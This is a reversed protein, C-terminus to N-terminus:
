KEKVRSEIVLGVPLAAEPMLPTPKTSMADADSAM